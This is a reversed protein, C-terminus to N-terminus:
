FQRGREILWDQELDMYKSKWFDREKELEVIARLKWVDNAVQVIPWDAPPPKDGRTVHASREAAENSQNTMPKTRRQHTAYLSTLSSLLLSKM